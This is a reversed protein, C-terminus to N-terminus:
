KVSAGKCASQGAAPNESWKDACIAFRIKEHCVLGGLGSGCETSVRENFQEDLTKQAQPAKVASAAVPAVPTVANSKTPSGDKTMAPKSKVTGTSFFKVSCTYTPTGDDTELNTSVVFKYTGSKAFVPSNHNFTATDIDLVIGKQQMFIKSDILATRPDAETLFAMTSGNIKYPLNVAFDGFARSTKITLKEGPHVTAPSCTIENAANAAANFLLASTLLALIQHKM